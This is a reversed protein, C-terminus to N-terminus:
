SHPVKVTVTKSSSGGASDTATITITYIRGGGSGAREARLRVHNADIVEWDPATDGDGTGNVPENSTISLSRAVKDVDCNDTVVYSVTVNVMKHNPPWLGPKDVSQSSIVPPPNNAVIVSSSSNDSPDSDPTAAAVSASNTISTGNGLTCNLTAVIQITATAGGAFTSFSVTRNNGSGGCVGGLSSSCSVFALSAPLNDTVVVNAAATSHSNKVLITYTVNSGTIV